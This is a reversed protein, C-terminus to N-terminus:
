PTSSRVLASVEWRRSTASQQWDAAAGQRRYAIRQRLDIERDAWGPATM